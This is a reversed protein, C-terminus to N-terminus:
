KLFPYKLKVRQKMEEDSIGKGEKSDQISKLILKELIPDLKESNNLVSNDDTGYIIEPEQLMDKKRNDQNNKKDNNMVFGKFVWIYL